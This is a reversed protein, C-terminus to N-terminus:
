TAPAPLLNAIATRIHVILQYATQGGGLKIVLKRAHRVVRGPLAIIQFRIAKLRRPLWEKKLVLRKMAMLLNFSLVAAWWWAANAGFYGSPLVGGALDDKLIAHVEESKGCRERHWWILQEGPLTRNTVIATLKYRKKVKSGLIATPFPLEAEPKELGPLEPDSMPERIALYRYPTANKGRKDGSPVFDIEAWEQNTAWRDGDEDTRYLRKWELESVKASAAKLEQSVDASITFEIRGWPKNDTADCYKMLEHQYGASDSRLLIKEVGAPLLAIAEQLCRLQQHGAPVNGDRFETHLMSQQEAWWTNFPQYAKFHKYCYLAELKSTETLTADQDLTAVTVPKHRQISAMLGQNVKSMGVLHAGPAPIFAAVGEARAVERRTEEGADHFEMLYRRMASRSPFARERGKRWRRKLERRAKRTMRYGRIELMVQCLGDDAELRDLDEVHEGGALNLLVLAMVMEADTWGQGGFRAQVHAEISAVMGLVSALEFFTPLGALGTLGCKTTSEYKFPLVGQKVM